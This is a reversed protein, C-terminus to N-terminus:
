HIIRVLVDADEVSFPQGGRCYNKAKTLALLILTIEYPRRFISYLNNRQVYLMRFVSAEM